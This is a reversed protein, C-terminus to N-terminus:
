QITWGGDVTLVHGTIYSAAESALFLTPMAIEYDRAMRRLPTLVNLREVFNEAQHDFIGGPAICNVRIKHPGYLSAFYKTLSSIAGKIAAYAVPVTMDTGEYLSFNPGVIGYISGFNILSGSSKKKMEELVLKSTWFYSGLHMKLNDNWSEFSVMDIFHGWDKTRPYAINVWVDIKNFLGIINNISNEIENPKEVDVQYFHTNQYSSFYQDFLDPSRDLVIVTANFECFAMVVQKGILGLGGTVVVVKDTFDVM